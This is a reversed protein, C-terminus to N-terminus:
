NKRSALAPLHSCFLAFLQDASAAISLPRYSKKSPAVCADGRVPWPKECRRLFDRRETQLAMADAREIERLIALSPLMLGAAEHIAHDHRRKLESMARIVITEEYRGANKGLIDRAIVSLARKAPSTIDGIRAEHADHLLAWPAAAKQACEFAIITHQAVSVPFDSAGCYRNIRALQEAIECFDVQEPVPDVLDIARGTLSQMWISM